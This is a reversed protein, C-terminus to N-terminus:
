VGRIEASGTIVVATDRVAGRRPAVYLLDWCRIVLHGTFRCVELKCLLENGLCIISLSDRIGDCSNRPAM